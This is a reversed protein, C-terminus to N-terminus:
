SDQADLKMRGWKRSISAIKSTTELLLLKDEDLCFEGYACAEWAILVFWLMQDLFVASECREPGNWFCM